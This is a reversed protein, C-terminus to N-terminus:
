LKLIKVRKLKLTDFFLFHGKFIAVERDIIRYNFYEDKVEFDVVLKKITSKKIEYAETQLTDQSAITISKDLLIRFFIDKKPVPVKIEATLKNELTTFLKGDLFLNVQHLHKLNESFSAKVELNMSDQPINSYYERVSIVPKVSNFKSTLIIENKSKKAWYGTSYSYRYESPQFTYSYTSDKNIAISYHTKKSAYVGFVITRSCSCFILLSLLYINKM